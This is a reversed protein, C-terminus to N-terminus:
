NTNYKFFQKTDKAMLFHLDSCSLNKGWDSYRDDLVCFVAFAPPYTCIFSSQTNNATIYLLANKVIFISILNRLFSCTSIRRSGAIGTRCITRFSNLHCWVATIIHMVVNIATCNVVALSRDGGCISLSFTCMCFPIKNNM